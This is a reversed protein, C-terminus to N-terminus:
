GNDNGNIAARCMKFIRGCVDDVHDPHIMSLCAMAEAIVAVNEFATSQAKKKSAMDLGRLSRSALNDLLTKSQGVAEKEGRRVTPNNKLENLAYRATNIAVHYLWTNLFAEGEFDTKPRDKAETETPLAFREFRRALETALAQNSRKSVLAILETDSLNEYTM